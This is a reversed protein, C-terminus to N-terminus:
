KNLFYFENFIYGSWGRFNKFENDIKASIFNCEYTFVNEEFYKKTLKSNPSIKKYNSSFWEIFCTKLTTWIIYDKKNGTKTIYESAFKCYIEENTLDNDTLNDTILNDNTLNINVM